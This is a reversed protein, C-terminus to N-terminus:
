SASTLFTAAVDQEGHAAAGAALRERVTRLLPLDLGHREALEGALAADKAALALKFSPEFDREIMAWNGGVFAESDAIIVREWIDHRDADTTRSYPNVPMM